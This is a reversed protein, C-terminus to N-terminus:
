QAQSDPEREADALKRYLALEREADNSRGAKKFLKSLRYHTNKVAPSLRESSEFERIAGSLDGRQEFLTGLISHGEALSPRLAVCRGALEKAKDLNARDMEIEALKCLSEADGPNLALEAQFQEEALKRKDETREESLIAQGLQYHLGSVQPGKQIAKRFEEAAQPYREQAMYNQGLVEHLWPSDRHDQALKQLNSSARASYIRYATYLVEPNDPDFRSLEEIRAEAQELMGSDTYSKVLELGAQVHLHRDTVGDLSEEVLHRGAADDGQRLECIGLFAKASASSPDLKLAQRFNRAADEYDARIFEVMGLNAYAGVNKPDLALIAQLERKAEAINNAAIAEQAKKVHQSLDGTTQGFTPLACAFWILPQALCVKL